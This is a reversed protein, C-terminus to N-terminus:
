QPSVEFPQKPSLFIVAGGRLERATIQLNAFHMKLESIPMQAAASSKFLGVIRTGIDRLLEESFSSSVTSAIINADRDLTMSGSPLSQISARPRSFINLLGM